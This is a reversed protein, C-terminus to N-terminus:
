GHWAHADEAEPDEEEDDLYLMWEARRARWRRVLAVLPLLAAVVLAVVYPWPPLVLLWPLRVPVEGGRGRIEATPRYIGIWPMDGIRLVVREAGGPLLVSTDTRTAGVSRGLGTMDLKVDYADVISSENHAIFRARYVKESKNRSLIWPAKLRSVRVPKAEGGPFTIILKQISSVRIGAGTVGGGPAEDLRTVQLGGVNTGAPAGTPVDIVFPIFIRELPALRVKTLAPRLWTGVVSPQFRLEQKQDPDPSGVIDVTTLEFGVTKAARNMISICTLYTRGQTLNSSEIQPPGIDFQEIPEIGTLRERLPETIGKCTDPYDKSIGSLLPHLPEARALEAKTAIQPTLAKLEPATAAEGAAAPLASAGLGVTAVAVLALQLLGQRRGM